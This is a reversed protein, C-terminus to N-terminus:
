CLVAVSLPDGPQRPFDNSTGGSWMPLRVIGRIDKNTLVEGVYIDQFVAPDPALHPILLDTM